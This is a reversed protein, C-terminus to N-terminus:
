LEQNFFSSGLTLPRFILYESLPGSLSKGQRAAAGPQCAKGLQQAATGLLVLPFRHV